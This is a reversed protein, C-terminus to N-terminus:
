KLSERQNELDMIAEMHWKTYKVENEQSLTVLSIVINAMTEYVCLDLRRNKNATKSCRLM